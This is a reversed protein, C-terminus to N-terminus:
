GVGQIGGTKAVKASNCRAHRLWYQRISFFVIPIVPWTFWPWLTQWRPLRAAAEIDFAAEAAGTKGRVHAQINWQGATPLEFVAARLLKNTAAATTADCTIVQSASLARVTVDVDAVFRGTDADQVLVSVDVPGARFPTPETFLTIQYPGQKQSVQVRGGDACASNCACVTLLSAAIAHQMRCRNLTFGLDADM